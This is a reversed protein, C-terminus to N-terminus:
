KVERRDHINGIVECFGPDIAEGFYHDYAWGDKTLAFSSLDQRWIVLCKDDSSGRLFDGEFIELGNKDRLGTFQGVSEPIVFHFSGLSEGGNEIITAGTTANFMDGYVWGKGDTRLGRFKIQRMTKSM